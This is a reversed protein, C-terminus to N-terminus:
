GVDSNVYMGSGVKDLTSETKVSSGMVVNSPLDNICLFGITTQTSSRESVVLLDLSGHPISKQVANLPIEQFILIPKPSFTTIITTLM